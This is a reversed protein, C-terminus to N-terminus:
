RIWRPGNPPRRTPSGTPTSTLSCSCFASSAQEAAAIDIATIRGAPVTSDHTAAYALGDPHFEAAYRARGTVKVPGDVRTLPAGIANM